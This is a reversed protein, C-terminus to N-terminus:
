PITCWRHSRLILTFTQLLLRPYYCTISSVVDTCQPSFGQFRGAGGDLPNRKATMHRPQLQILPPTFKSTVRKAKSPLHLATVTWLCVPTDSTRPPVWFIGPQRQLFDYFEGYPRDAATV